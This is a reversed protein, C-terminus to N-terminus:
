RGCQGNPYSPLVFTPIGDMGFLPLKGDFDINRTPSPPPPSEQEDKLARVVCDTPRGVVSRKRPPTALLPCLPFPAAGPVSSLLKPALIFSAM